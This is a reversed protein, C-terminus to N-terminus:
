DIVRRIVEEYPDYEVQGIVAFRKKVTQVPTDKVVLKDKVYVGTKDHEPHHLIASIKTADIFREEGKEMLVAGAVCHTHGTSTGKGFVDTKSKKAGKPLSEIEELLYDGHQYQVPATAQKSM